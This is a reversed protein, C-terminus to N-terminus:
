VSVFGLNPDLVFDRQGDFGVHLNDGERDVKIFINSGVRSFVSVKVFSDHFQHRSWMYSCDRVVRYSPAYLGRLCESEPPGFGFKMLSPTLEKRADDVVFERFELCDEVKNIIVCSEDGGNLICEPGLLWNSVVDGSNKYHLRDVVVLGHRLSFLITRSSTGKGFFSPVHSSIAVFENDSWLCKVGDGYKEKPRNFSYEGDLYLVNHARPSIFYKRLSDKDYQYKGGDVLIDSAESWVIAQCDYHKHNKEFYSANMALTSKNGKYWYHVIFRGDLSGVYEIYNQDGRVRKAEKKNPCKESDCSRLTMDSDGFPLLRGDFYYQFKEGKDALDAMKAIYSCDEYFGSALYKRLLYKAVVHYHPSNEKHLGNETFQSRWVRFSLEKLQHTVKQLYGTGIWEDPFVKALCMLGHVDYIGHNNEKIFGPNDLMRIHALSLRRIIESFKSEFRDINSVILAIKSARVGVVHDIWVHQWSFEEHKAVWLEWQTIISELFTREREGLEKIEKIFIPDLFRWMHLQRIWNKDKGRGSWDVPDTKFFDDFKRIKGGHSLLRDISNIKSSTVWTSNIDISSM